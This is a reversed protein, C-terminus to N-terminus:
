KGKFLGWGKSERPEINANPQNYEHEYRNKSLTEFGYAGVGLTSRLLYLYIDAMFKVNHAFISKINNMGEKIIKKNSPKFKNVKLSDMYEYFFENLKAIERIWTFYKGLLYRDYESLNSIKIEVGTLLYLLRLIDKRDLKEKNMLEGIEDISKNGLLKDSFSKDDNGKSSFVEKELAKVYFDKDLFLM